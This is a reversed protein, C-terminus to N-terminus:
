DIGHAKERRSAECHGQWGAAPRFSPGFPGLSSAPRERGEFRARITEPGFSALPYADIRFAERIVPIREPDFGMLLAHVWEAAALNRAGTLFGAAVPGPSLPGEGDGGIIADTITVIERQPTDGLSGDPRGYLAIRDLDLCTRWITGNGYWSGEVDDNGGMRRVGVLAATACLLFGARMRGSRRNAADLLDEASRKIWSGGEYCDGGQASGGKRHHPLFEKNGNIGILNKLAGTVCAKKHSKLKPLNIIIDAEIAERAILYQHRGPGHTRMLLDPNYMTVRFDANAGIAELLSETGLDFLV